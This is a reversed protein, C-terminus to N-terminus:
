AMFREILKNFDNEQIDKDMFVLSHFIGGIAQMIVDPKLDAFKKKRMGDDIIGLITNYLRKQYKKWKQDKDNQVSNHATFLFEYINQNRSVIEALKNIVDLFKKDPSSNSSIIDEIGTLLNKWGDELISSIIDDKSTFYYYLTAKGFDSSIAIQEMTVGEIGHQKFSSLASDIILKKRLEREKEKRTSMKRGIM